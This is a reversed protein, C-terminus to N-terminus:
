NKGYMPSLKCLFKPQYKALFCKLISFSLYKLALINHNHYLLEHLAAQSFHLRFRFLQVIEEFTNNGTWVFNKMIKCRLM